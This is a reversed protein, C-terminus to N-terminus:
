DGQTPEAPNAAHKNPSDYLRAKPDLGLHYMLQCERAEMRALRAEIRELMASAPETTNHRTGVSAWAKVQQQNAPSLEAYAVNGDAMLLMLRVGQPARRIDYNWTRSM